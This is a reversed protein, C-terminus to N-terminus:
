KEKYVFIAEVKETLNEQEVEPVPKCPYSGSLYTNTYFLFEQPLKLPLYLYLYNLEKHIEGKRLLEQPPVWGGKERDFVWGKPMWNYITRHEVDSSVFEIGNKTMLTATWM